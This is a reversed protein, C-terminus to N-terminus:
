ACIDMQRIVIQLQDFIIVDFLIRSFIYSDSGVVPVKRVGPHPLPPPAAHCCGSEQGSEVIGTLFVARMLYGICYVCTSSASIRIRITQDCGTWSFLYYVSRAKRLSSELIQKSRSCDCIPNEEGFLGIKRWAHAVQESNGDLMLVM